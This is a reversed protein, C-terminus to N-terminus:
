YGDCYDFLVGCVWSFYSFTSSTAGSQAVWGVYWQYSSYSGSGGSASATFTKSQGVDMVWSAPSVTVTPVANVLVSVPNSTVSQRFRTLLRFSLVGLGLLRLVRRLLLTVLRLRVVLRRTLVLALLGSFGSIRILLLVRLCLLLLCFM